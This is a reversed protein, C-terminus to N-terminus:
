AQARAMLCPMKPRHPLMSEFSQVHINRWGAALLLKSLSSGDFGTQHFAGPHEQSGYIYQCWEGSCGAAMIAGMDPVEILLRGRPAMWSRIRRMLPLSDARPLHELMHFSTVEDVNEFTLDRVDGLMDAPLYLDVNTYGPELHEGCGLNLKM